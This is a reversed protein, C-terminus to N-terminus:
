GLLRRWYSHLGVLVIWDGGREFFINALAINGSVKKHWCSQVRGPANNRTFSSNDGAGAGRRLSEPLDIWGDVGLNKTAIAVFNNVPIHDDLDAAQGTRNEL